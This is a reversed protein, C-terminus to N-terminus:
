DCNIISAECSSSTQNADQPSASLNPKLSSRSGMSWGYEKRNKVPAAKKKWGERRFKERDREREWQRFKTGLIFSWRSFHQSVKWIHSLKPPFSGEKLISLPLASLPLMVSSLAPSNQVCTKGGRALNFHWSYVNKAANDHVIKRRAIKRAIRSDDNRKRWLLKEFGDSFKWLFSAM